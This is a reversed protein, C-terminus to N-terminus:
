KTQDPRSVDAPWDKPIRPHGKPISGTEIGSPPRKTATQVQLWDKFVEGIYKVIGERAGAALLLLVTTGLALIRRRIGFLRGWPRPQDKPQQNDAM